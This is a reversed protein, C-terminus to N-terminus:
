LRHCGLKYFFMFVERVGSEKQNKEREKGWLMAWTIQKPFHASLKCVCLFSLFTVEPANMLPSSLIFIRVFSLHVIFEVTTVYIYHVLLLLLLIPGYNCELGTSIVTGSRLPLIKSCCKTLLAREGPPNPQLPCKLPLFLVIPLLIIWTWCRLHLISHLRQIIFCLCSIWCALFTVTLSSNSNNLFTLRHIFMSWWPRKCM